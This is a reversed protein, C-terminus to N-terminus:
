EIIKYGLREINDRVIRSLEGETMQSSDYEVLIHGSDIDISEVGKMHGMFRRLALSCEDCFERGVNFLIKEM